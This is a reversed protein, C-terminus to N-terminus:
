KKDKILKGLALSDTHGIHAALLRKSGATLDAVNEKAKLDDGSLIAETIAQLIALGTAEMEGLQKKWAGKKGPAAGNFVDAWIDQGVSKSTLYIGLCDNAEVFEEVENMIHGIVTHGRTEARSEENEGTEIAYLKLKAYKVAMSLLKGTSKDNTDEGQSAIRMTIIDKEPLGVGRVEIKYVAETFLMKGNPKPSMKVTEPIVDPFMIIGHKVELDRTMSTVQDHTVVQYKDGVKADKRIYAIERQIANIRGLLTTALPEPEQGSEPAETTDTM